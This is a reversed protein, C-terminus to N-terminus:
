VTEDTNIKGRRGNGFPCIIVKFCVGTGNRKVIVM